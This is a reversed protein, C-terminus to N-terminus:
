TVVASSIEVKTPSFNFDVGHFDAKSSRIFSVLYFRSKLYGVCFVWKPRSGEPSSDFLTQVKELFFKLLYMRVVRIPVSEGSRQIKRDGLRM